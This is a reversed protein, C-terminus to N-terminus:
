LRALTLRGPPRATALRRQAEEKAKREEEMQGELDSVVRKLRVLEEEAQALAALKQRLEGLERTAEKHKAQLEDRAAQLKEHAAQLAELKRRCTAHPRRM